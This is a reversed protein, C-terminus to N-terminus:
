LRRLGRLTPPAEFRLTSTFVNNLKNHSPIPWTTVATPQTALIM